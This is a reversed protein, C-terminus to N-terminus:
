RVVTLSLSASPTEIQVCCVSWLARVCKVAFFGLVNQNGPCRHRFRKKRVQKAVLFYYVLLNCFLGPVTLTHEYTRLKWTMQRPLSICMNKKGSNDTDVIRFITELTSRHRYLTELLSQDIHQFLLLSPLWTLFTGVSFDKIKMLCRATRHCTPRPLVVKLTNHSQRNVVKVLPPDLRPCSSKSLM